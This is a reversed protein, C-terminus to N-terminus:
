LLALPLCSENLSEPRQVQGAPDASSLAWGPATELAQTKWWICSSTPASVEPFRTNVPSVHLRACPWGSEQESCVPSRPGAGRTRYVQVSEVRSVPSLIEQKRLCLLGKVPTFEGPLTEPGLVAPLTPGLKQSLGKGSAAGPSPGPGWPATGLPSTGLIGEDKQTSVSGRRSRRPCFHEPIGFKLAWLAPPTQVTRMVSRGVPRPLGPIVCM